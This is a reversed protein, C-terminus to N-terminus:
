RDLAELADVRGSVLMTGAVFPLGFFPFSPRGFMVKEPPLSNTEPLPHSKPYGATNPREKEEM